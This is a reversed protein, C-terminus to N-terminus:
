DADLVWHSEMEGDLYCIRFSVTYTPKQDCVCVHVFVSLCMWVQVRAHIFENAHARKCICICFIGKVHMVHM